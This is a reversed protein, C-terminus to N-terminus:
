LDSEREFEIGRARAKALWDEFEKISSFHYDFLGHNRWTRIEKASRSYLVRETETNGLTRAWINDANGDDIANYVQADPYYHAFVSLFQEETVPAKHESPLHRRKKDLENVISYDIKNNECLKEFDRIKQTLYYEEMGWALNERECKQTLEKVQKQYKECLSKLKKQDDPLKVAM